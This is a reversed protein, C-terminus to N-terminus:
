PTGFLLLSGGQQDDHRRRLMWVQPSWLVSTEQEASQEGSSKVRRVFLRARAASVLISLKLPM